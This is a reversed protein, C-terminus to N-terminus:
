GFAAARQRYSPKAPYHQALAFTPSTIPEDIGLALALGQVLSTKGAGLPGSLLLVAGPPLRGALDRGLRHTAELDELTWSSETSQQGPSGSAEAVRCLNGDM